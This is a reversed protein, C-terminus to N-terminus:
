SLRSSIIGTNFGGMRLEGHLRQYEIKPCRNMVVTLGQAEARAAADEDIVGIQMWITKLEFRDKHLMAEDVVAGAESSRRFIDVMDLQVGEDAVDTLSRRITEGLVVQGAYRPNIPLIRYGKLRLYRAVYFSPRVPNISVGVLAISRSGDLIAALASDDYSFTTM